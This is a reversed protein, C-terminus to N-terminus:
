GKESTHKAELRAAAVALHAYFQEVVVWPQRENGGTVRTKSEAVTPTERPAEVSMLASSDDEDGLFVEDTSGSEGGGGRPSSYGGQSQSNAIDLAREPPPRKIPLDSAIRAGAAIKTARKLAHLVRSSGVEAM